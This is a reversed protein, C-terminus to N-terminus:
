IFASTDAPSYLRYDDSQAKRVEAQLSNTLIVFSGLVAFIARLM